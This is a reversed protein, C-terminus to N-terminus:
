LVIKRPLSEKKYQKLTQNHYENSPMGKLNHRIRDPGGNYYEVWETM